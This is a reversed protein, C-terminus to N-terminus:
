RGRIKRVTVDQYCFTGVCHFDCMRPIDACLNSLKSIISYEFMVAVLTVNLSINLLYLLRNVSSAVPPPLAWMSALLQCHCMVTAAPLDIRIALSPNFCFIDM